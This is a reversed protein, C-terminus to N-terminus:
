AGRGLLGRRRRPATADRETKPVERLEGPRWDRILRDCREVERTLSDVEGRTESTAVALVRKWLTQRAPETESPTIRAVHTTWGPDRREFPPRPETTPVPVREDYPLAAVAGAELRTLFGHAALLREQLAARYDRTADCSVEYPARGVAFCDGVIHGRGPSLYGHHVMTGRIARECVACTGVTAM